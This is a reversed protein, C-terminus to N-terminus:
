DIKSGDKRATWRGRVKLSVWALYLLAGWVVVFNILEVFPLDSVVGTPISISLPPAHMIAECDTLSLSTNLSLFHFTTSLPFLSSLDDDISSIPCTPLDKEVTLLMILIM